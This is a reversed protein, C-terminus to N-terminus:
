AAVQNGASVIVLHPNDILAQAGAQLSQMLDAGVADATPRLIAWGNRGNNKVWYLAADALEVAQEWGLTHPADRFTRYESLGISCTMPLHLGEGVDFVHEAVRRRIREGLGPVAPRPMPRFVLLFEEGGWRVVYDNVQVLGSLVGAFVQLARDGVTHGYTDNIRKFHDIDVIAFVLAMEGDGSREHERDYFALDVPIQSTLYRRNHLGTLPDTQSAHELQINALRLSESTRRRELANAIHLSVFSLLEEDRDTYQYDPTYSQVAIVGFARGESVLPVGLWCVAAIGIWEVEGSAKLLEFKPYDVLLSKGTRLVYESLGRGLRRSEFRQHHDDISFPFHLDQGDESLIGIYFNRADLLEGVIGHITAYFSEMTGASSAVEAIRFLAAQLREARQRELIEERLALTREAVRREMEQAAERRALTTMINQALYALLTQDDYSYRIAPDYSQVVVAGRVQGNEIMPVGLWDESRPGIRDDRPLKLQERLANGPGHLPLGQRLMALTLSNSLSSAPIVENPDRRNLDLSDAFYVFQMTEPEADYRVIYFNKAYMLRGVIQHLELLVDDADRDSSACDSIAFLSRQLREARALREVDNRLRETQLLSECRVSLLGIAEQWQARQEPAGHGDSTRGYVLAAWQQGNDSLLCACDFHSNGTSKEVVEGQRRAGALLAAVAPHIVGHPYTRATQEQGLDTNWALQVRHCGLSELHRVAVRAFELM